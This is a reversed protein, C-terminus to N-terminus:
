LVLEGEAVPRRDNGTSSAVQVFNTRVHKFRAGHDLPAVVPGSGDVVAAVIILGICSEERLDTQSFRYTDFM